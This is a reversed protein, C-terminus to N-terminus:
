VKYLGRHQSYIESKSSSTSFVMSSVFSMGSVTAAVPFTEMDRLLIIRETPSSKMRLILIGGGERRWIQDESM